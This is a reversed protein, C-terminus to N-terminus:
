PKGAEVEKRKVGGGGDEDLKSIRLVNRQLMLLTGAQKKFAGRLFAAGDAPVRRLAEEDDGAADRLRQIMRGLLPKRTAYAVVYSAQTYVDPMGTTASTAKEQAERWEAWEISGLTCEWVRGDDLEITFDEQSRSNPAPANGLYYALLADEGAGDVGQGRAATEIRADLTPEEDPTPPKAGQQPATSAEM